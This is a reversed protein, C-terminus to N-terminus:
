LLRGQETEKAIRRRAIDCYEPNLELMIYHRGNQAALHKVAKLTCIDGTGEIKGESLYNEMENAGDDESINNGHKHYSKAYFGHLPAIHGIRSSRIEGFKEHRSIEPCLAKKRNQNNHDIATLEYARPYFDLNEPESSEGHLKETPAHECGQKPELHFGSHRNCDPQSADQREDYEATSEKSNLGEHTSYNLSRTRYNDDAEGHKSQGLANDGEVVQNIQEPWKM